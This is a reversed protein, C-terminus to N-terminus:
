RGFSLADKRRCLFGDKIVWEDGCYVKTERYPMAPILPTVQRVCESREAESLDEMGLAYFSNERISPLVDEVVWRQFIEADPLTSRMVLQYMGAEDILTMRIHRKNGSVLTNADNERVKGNQTLSLFADEPVAALLRHDSSVHASIAKSLQVMRASDKESRGGYGLAEAVDRGIFYFKDNVYLTRLEGFVDNQFVSFRDILYNRVTKQM